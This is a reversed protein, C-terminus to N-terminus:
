RKTRRFYRELGKPIRSNMFEAALKSIVTSLHLKRSCEEDMLLKSDRLDRLTKRTVEIRIYNTNM